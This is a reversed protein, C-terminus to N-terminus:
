TEKRQAFESKHQPQPASAEQAIMLLNTKLRGVKKKAHPDSQRPNKEAAEVGRQPCISLYYQLLVTDSSVLECFKLLFARKQPWSLTSEGVKLPTAESM